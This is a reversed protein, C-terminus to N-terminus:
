PSAVGSTRVLGYDPPDDIATTVSMPCKGHRLQVGSKVEVHEMAALTLSTKRPPEFLCDFNQDSPVIDVAQLPPIGLGAFGQCIDSPMEENRVQGQRSCHQFDPGAAAPPCAVHEVHFLQIDNVKILLKEVLELGIEPRRVQHKYFVVSVIERSDCIFRNVENKRESGKYM